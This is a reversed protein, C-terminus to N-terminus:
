AAPCHAGHVALFTFVGTPDRGLGIQELYTGDPNRALGPITDSLHARGLLVEWSSLDKGQLLSKWASNSAAVATVRAVSFCLALLIGRALPGRARTTRARPNCTKM